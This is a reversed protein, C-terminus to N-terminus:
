QVNKLQEEEYEDILMELAARFEKHWWRAPPTENWWDRCGLAVILKNSTSPIESHQICLLGFKKDLYKKAILRFNRM